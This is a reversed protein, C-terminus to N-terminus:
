CDRPCNQGLPEWVKVLGLVQIELHHQHQQDPSWMNFFAARCCKLFGIIEIDSWNSCTKGLLKVFIIKWQFIKTSEREKMSVTHLSYIPTYCCKMKGYSLDQNINWYFQTKGLHSPQVMQSITSGEQGRETTTQHKKISMGGTFSRLARNPEM